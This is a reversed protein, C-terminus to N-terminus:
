PWEHMRRFGYKDGKKLKWKAETGEEIPIMIQQIQECTTSM